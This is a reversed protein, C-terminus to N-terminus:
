CHNENLLIKVMPELSQALLKYGDSSLHIGDSVYLHKNQTGDSNIFKDYFNVFYVVHDHYYKYHKQILHNVNKARKNEAGERPLQGVFIIKAHPLKEKLKQM